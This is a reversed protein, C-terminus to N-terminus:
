LTTCYLHEQNAGWRSAEFWQEASTDDPFLQFLDVISLGKCFFKGPVAMLHKTSQNSIILSDSEAQKTLHIIGMIEYQKLCSYNGNSQSCHFSVPNETPDM